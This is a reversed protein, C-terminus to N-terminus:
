SLDNQIFFIVGFFENKFVIFFFSNACYLGDIAHMIERSNIM